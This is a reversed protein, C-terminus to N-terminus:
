SIKIFKKITWEASWVELIMGAQNILVYYSQELDDPSQTFSQKNRGIRFYMGGTPNSYQFSPKPSKFLNGKFSDTLLARIVFTNVNLEPTDSSLIIATSTPQLNFVSSYGRVEAQAEINTYSSNPGTPANPYAAEYQAQTMFPANNSNAIYWQKTGVVPVNAPQILAITCTLPSGGSNSYGSSPVTVTFDVNRPTDQTVGNFGIPSFATITGRNAIGKGISGFSTISQNTLAALSCTFTPLSATPQSFIKSCEISGSTNSYGTPITIVFYLTVNRASGTTNAPYSTIASGGSSSRIETITGSLIPNVITGNQAISGGSFYTDNCDYAIQSTTTIQIPQTADCTAIDGDTAEVYLKKVGAKNQSFITLTNGDLSHQFYDLNNNTVNYAAIPDSGATFYSALNISVSDGGTDLAQNPVTGNLTVGGSCVLAPQSVTVSCDITDDSANSFNTPISIKFVITRNTATGVTAYRGDVFGSDSSTYSAIDGYDTSPLQVDGFMNVGALQLNILSCTLAVSPLAPESYKLYFPSRANIKTSM